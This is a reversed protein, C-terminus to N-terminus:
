FGAYEIEEYLQIGFKNRVKQKILSILIIVDEARAGGTNIIFNAHRESIKAGGIQYGKLGAGEILWGAPLKGDRVVKKIEPYKQCLEDGVRRHYFHKRMKSFFADGFPPPNTVIPNKFVCGASPEAPQNKRKKLCEKIKKKIIERQGKNFEFEAELIILEPRQKFISTRYKFQCDKNDFWRALFSDGVGEKEGKGLPLNLPPKEGALVKVRKLIKEISGGCAGANGRVAGGVTGPIGVAWELGSFKNKVSLEVLKSLNAGAEAFIKCKSNDNQMKIKLNQMKIVLGDFGKDSFLINSGGGLIFYPLKKNKVWEIAERLDKTTKAEFFYKARGGIQFTTFPRLLINEQIGKM